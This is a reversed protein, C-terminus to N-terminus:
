SGLRLRWTSLREIAVMNFHTPRHHISRYFEAGFLRIRQHEMANGFWLKNLKTDVPVNHCCTVTM